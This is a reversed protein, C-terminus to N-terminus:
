GRTAPLEAEPMRQFQTLQPDFKTWPAAEVVFVDSILVFNSIDDLTAALVSTHDPNNARRAYVWTSCTACRTTTVMGGSEATRDFNFAQGSLVEFGDTKVTYATSFSGGTLKQCAKCHCNASWVPPKTCRYRMAGCM